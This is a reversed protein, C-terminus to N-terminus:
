HRLIPEALTQAQAVTIGERFDRALQHEGPHISNAPRKGQPRQHVTTPLSWTNAYGPIASCLYGFFTDDLDPENYTSVYRDYSTRSLSVWVGWLFPDEIGIIPIELITRIFYHLGDEDEYWCVNDDAFGAARTEESQQLWHDPRM